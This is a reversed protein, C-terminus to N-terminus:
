FLTVYYTKSSSADINVLSVCPNSLYPKWEKYESKPMYKDGIFKLSVTGKFEKSETVKIFHYTNNEFNWCCDNAVSINEITIGTYLSRVSFGADTFAKAIKDIEVKSGKKFIIKGDTHELNMIVSDVFSLKRISMEVSRSCASCTLGNVGVQAWSFQALIFSLNSFSFFIFLFLFKLKMSFLKDFTFLKFKQLTITTLLHSIYLKKFVKADGYYLTFCRKIINDIVLM